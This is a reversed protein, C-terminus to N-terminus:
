TNCITNSRGGVISSYSVDGGVISNSNGCRVTAGTVGCDVIIGYSGGNIVNCAWSSTIQWNSGTGLIPQWSGATRGYLKSDGVDSVSGAANIATIYSGTLVLYGIPASGTSLLCTTFIASGSKLGSAILDTTCLNTNTVIINSM